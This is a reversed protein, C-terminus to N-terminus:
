LQRRVEKLDKRLPTKEGNLGERFVRNLVALNGELHVRDWEAQNNKEM